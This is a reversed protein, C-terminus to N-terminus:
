HLLDLTNEADNVFYVGHQDPTLTLGFLGGEGAGTDVPPFQFGFPTTEVINGNGGNATLINGNPALTLGLPQALGGASTVTLGGHTAPAIRLAALPVAAIRNGDTDAVFLTGFQNLALGTPGLVFAAEDTREPFGTAIVHESVVQPPGPSRTDLMVRVINGGFSTEEVTENLVNSVFLDTFGSFSASTMDWPGNIMHGAITKVPHGHPDLVILCGAKATAAEGNESPLSGVVVFNDPLIALATTLGVGGPCPGPLESAKLKAFLTQSGGPSLEVITSGTGQLNESDNFNSILIDGRVLAGTSRPVVAIGYPNVDGNGPVTEGVQSVTHLGGIFPPGFASAAVPSLAGLMMAAAALAGGALAAIRAGARRRPAAQSEFPPVEPLACRRLSNM